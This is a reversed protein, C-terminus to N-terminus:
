ITPFSLVVTTGHDKSMSEHVSDIHIKGGLKEVWQRVLPIGMGSGKEGNTGLNSQIITDLNLERLRSPLMGIGEDEITILVEHDLKKIQLRVTSNPYSYKCANSLLNNMISGVFWNRDVKIRSDKANDIISLEVQKSIFSSDLTSASEEVLETLNYEEMEVNLRGEHGAVVEHVSKLFRHARLSAQHLRPLFLNVKRHEQDRQLLQSINFIAGVYNALDHCLVHVLARYKSRSDKLEKQLSQIKLHTKIRAKLEQSNVPKQIFDVAGIDFAVVKANVDSEASLFVIPVDESGLRSVIKSCFDTGYGDPLRLDLLILNVQNSDLFELLENGSSFGIVEYKGTRRLLQELQTRMYEDDDCIVIIPQPTTESM